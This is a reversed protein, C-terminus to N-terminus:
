VDAAGRPCGGRRCDAVGGLEREVVVDLRAVRIRVADADRRVDPEAAARDCVARVVVGREGEVAYLVLGRVLHVRRRGGDVAWRSDRARGGVAGVVRGSLGNTHEQGEGLRHLHDAFGGQRQRHARVAAAHAIPLAAAAGREREGVRNQGALHVGAADGNRRVAEREVAACQAVCQAVFRVQAVHRQRVIAVVRDIAALVHVRRADRGHAHGTAWGVGAAAEAIAGVDGYVDLEVFGDEGAVVARFQREVYATLLSDCTVGAAAAGRLEHEEVAHVRYVVALHDDRGVVQLAVARRQLVGGAVLGVDGLGAAAGGADSRVAHCGAHLRDREGGVGAEAVGVLAAFGDAGLQREGLRDADGVRRAQRQVEANAGVGARGAQECGRIAAVVTSQRELVHHLVAVLVPVADFHQRARESAARDGVKRVVRRVQAAGGEGGLGGM